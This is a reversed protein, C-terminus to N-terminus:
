ADAQPLFSASGELEYRLVEGPKLEARVLMAHAGASAGKTAQGSCVAIATAFTVAIATRAIKSLSTRM